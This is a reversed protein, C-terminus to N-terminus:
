RDDLLRVGSGGAFVLREVDPSLRLAVTRGAHRAAQLHDVVLELAPASLVTVSGAEIGDIRAPEHGYRGLFVDVAAADVDGALNLVRGGATNLLRVVGRTSGPGDAPPSVVGGTHGGSATSRDLGVDSAAPRKGQLGGPGPGVTRTHVGADCRSRVRARRTRTGAPDTIYRSPSVPSSSSRTTPPRTRTKTVAGSAAAQGHAVGATTPEDTDHRHVRRSEHHRRADLGHDLRIQQAEPRVDHPPGSGLIGSHGIGQQTFQGVADEAEDM